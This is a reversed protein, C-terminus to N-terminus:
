GSRVETERFWHRLGRCLATFKAANGAELPLFGTDPWTEPRIEPASDTM